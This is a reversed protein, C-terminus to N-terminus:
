RRACCSRPRSPSSRASRCATRRSVAALARPLDCDRAMALATRSVGALLSLLVGLAAVAAGARVVPAVRGPRRGRGRRGAARGVRGARAARRGAAGRGRGAPLRRARAGLALPVARPITRAPDRVESASRRSARTAPSPSSCCGRPSCCAARRQRRRHRAPRRPRRDRRGAGRRGRARARCCWRRAAGADAPRDQRHRAARGRHARGRRRRGRGAPRLGTRRVGRFTLAMAACSATKGVVFGSGALCGWFPGLRRPRLRLHRRVRPPPRRAARRSRTAPRSWAPSPSASSCLSGAAARPRALVAFVGAGLMAGLGVVVADTTGLRRELEGSGADRM